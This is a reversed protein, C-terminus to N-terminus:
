ALNLYFAKLQFVAEKEKMFVKYGPYM